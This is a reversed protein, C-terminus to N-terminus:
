KKKGKKKGAAKKGGKKKGAGATGYVTAPTDYMGTM